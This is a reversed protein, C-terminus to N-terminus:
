LEAIVKIAVAVGAIPLMASFAGAVGPMKALLSNLHRPLRIGVADELLMLGGRGESISGFSKDIDGATEDAIKKAKDAGKQFDVTNLGLLVYMSSIAQDDAM